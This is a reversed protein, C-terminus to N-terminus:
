YDILCRVGATLLRPSRIRALTPKVPLNAPM